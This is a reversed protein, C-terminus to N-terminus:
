RKALDRLHNWAPWPDTLDLDTYGRKAAVVAAVDRFTVVVLAHDRVKLVEDRTLPRGAFEEGGTLLAALTPMFQFVLDAPLPQAALHAYRGHDGPALPLAPDTEM